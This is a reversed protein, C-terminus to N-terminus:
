KGKGLFDKISQYIAEKNPIQSTIFNDFETIGNELEHLFKGSGYDSEVQGYCFLNVKKLFKDKLLKICYQTDADAWNDGDSFHFIYVNWSEEPFAKLEENCLVYASSIITGGSERTHFFTESDVVEASADHIIYITKVNKYHHQIWTDIWFAEIRVIEKQEDGMSGSVDMMYIILANSEPKPKAAWSLYRKDWPIYSIEPKEPDYSGSSILRKLARRYMSKFRRLSEPGTRRESTFRHKSSLIQNKGKPEIRPLSLGEGLIQALEEMSYDVELIHNGPANGAQGSQEDPDGPAFVDGEDGDGQGVGVAGRRGFRFNPMDIQPVPISVFDKGKKGIMEGNSIYKKLDQKIKGRVIQRFRAYDREINGVNFLGNM